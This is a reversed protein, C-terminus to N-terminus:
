KKGDGKVRKLVVLKREDDAATGLAEPRPEGPNGATCIKLTNGSLEYIAKITKKEGNPLILIMDLERPKKDPRLDFTVVINRDTGEPAVIVQNGIFTLIDRVAKVDKKGKHYSAVTTWKGQIKEADGKKKEGKDAAVLAVAVLLIAIHPLRKM